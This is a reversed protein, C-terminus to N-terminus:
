KLGGLKRFCSTSDIKCHDHRESGATAALQRLSDPLPGHCMVKKGAAAATQCASCLVQLATIDLEVNKDFEIFVTDKEGLSQRLLAAFDGITEITLREGSNITTENTNKDGSLANQVQDFFKGTGQKTAM